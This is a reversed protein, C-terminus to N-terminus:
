RLVWFFTSTWCPFSKLFRCSEIELFRSGVLVSGLSGYIFCRLSGRHFFDTFDGSFSLKTQKVATLNARKKEVSEVRM